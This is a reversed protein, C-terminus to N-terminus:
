FLSDGPLNRQFLGQAVHPLSVTEAGRLFSPRQHRFRRAEGLPGSLFGAPSKVSLREPNCSSLLYDLVKLFIDM